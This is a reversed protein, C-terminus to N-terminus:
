KLEITDITRETVIAFRTNTKQPVLLLIPEEYSGEFKKMGEYTAVYISSDGYLVVQHGGFTVETYDFDFEKTSLLKGQLDYVEMRYKNEVSANRLILAIADDGYFVSLVEDTLFIEQVSVPKHEDKYFSLRDSSISFSSSNNVFRVMPVFDEKFNYGSVYNDINNQGVGGFNYFAVSSRIDEVDLYYYSVAVLEGSPSIDIDVPYGSKEMTTRFYSIEKGNFDYMYIWTVNIDELVAVVYGGSSVSIKRIPMNTSVTTATGSATQIYITSAGYDAFAVTDGCKSMLPFQMDFTQNWLLKGSADMAEAGDKSYSMINGDFSSLTSGSGAYADVSSLKTYTKYEKTKIYLYCMVMTIAVLAIIVLVIYLRLQKRRKTQAEVAEASIDDVGPFRRINSM